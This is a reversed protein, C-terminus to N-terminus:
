KDVVDRELNVRKPPLEANVYYTVSVTDGLSSLLRETGESLTYRGDGTLDLRTNNEISLYNLACLGAVMLMAMLYFHYTQSRARNVM